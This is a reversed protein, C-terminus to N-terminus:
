DSRLSNVPNAMAAKIIQLSITILAVFLAGMGAIVFIWWQISVRYAFDQLWINMGYWAFPSAIIIAIVILQVFDGTLLLTIRAVGAGVVKRIAIEKTRRKATFMAVGFLGMCSIFITVIMALNMLRAEKQEKEYYSAISDDLFRCDFFDNPFVEKWEKEVLDLISKAEVPEKTTLKLGVCREMMSLNGILAPKIAEHFSGEHYDAVVGVIPYPKENWFLSKGVVEEPKKFGLAKAYVENIVFEKLSDSQVINRGTVLRMQYFPIFQADGANILVMLETETKGKFKVPVDIRPGGIPPSGQLVVEEIGSLHKIKETFIKISSAKNSWNWNYIYVIADTKFGFDAHLMYRIQNGIVLSAIIFILSITFQFIILGKRLWWKEKGKQVASGKLSLIPLYSSLVKAPYLGALISTTLTVLLLFIFSVPDLLHFTLGQPLFDHFGFLGPKVLITALIVAVLTLLFTETLCQLILNTKSSGLIKRVTMEKARQISEATTLNIFNIGAIILIFLAIGMLGYLTPLNAKRISDHEYNNNFHIDSLAQIQLGLKNLDDDGWRKKKMFFALEKNITEAKQNKSIKVFSYIWSGGPNPLLDDSAYQNRLFSSQITKFSIFDRYPFDTNEKWDRVIGSVIVRLSDDYVVESGMIKDIPLFGFYKRASIESLVVKFPANLATLPNGAIWTYKFVNFFSPDTIITGTTQTGEVQADFNRFKGLGDKITIKAPYPYFRTVVEIGPIEREVAKPAAPPIDSICFTTGNNELIKGGLRYIREGDPHFRDFSFEYRCVIFIVMCANIGLALGLVNIFAFVKHRTIHRWAIKLHNKLM